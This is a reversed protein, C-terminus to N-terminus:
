DPERCRELDDLDTVLTTVCEVEGDTLVARKCFRDAEEMARPTEPGAVHRVLLDCEARTLPRRKKLSSPLRPTEVPPPATPAAAVSSVTGVPVETPAAAPASSGCAAIVIVLWRGM